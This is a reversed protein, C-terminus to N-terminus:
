GTDVRTITALWAQVDHDEVNTEMIAPEIADVRWGDRFAERIEDQRIRRPGM